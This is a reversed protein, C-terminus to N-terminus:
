ITIIGLNVENEWDKVVIPVATEGTEVPVYPTDGPYHTIHIEGIAYSRNRELIPLEVPYYGKKGVLTVEIVLMTHRPCWEATYASAETPNPYPYFVHLQEYPSTNKVVADARDYLFPDLATDTHALRNAWSEPAAEMGLRAETAVNVLWIADLHLSENALAYEFGTTIRGVSVRSVLRRVTIAVTGGDTLNRTDSGSMVFADRRNDSLRSVQRELEEQSLIASLSPANVVAWVTRLGATVTLTASTAAGADRYDELKGDRFVFVQLNGVKAEDAASIDTARTPCVGQITVTIDIASGDEVVHATKSCSFVSLTALAIAIRYIFRM